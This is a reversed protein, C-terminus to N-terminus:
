DAKGNDIPGTTAVLDRRPREVEIEARRYLRPYRANCADLQGLRVACEDLPKIVIAIGLTAVGASLQKCPAASLRFAVTPEKAGTRNLSPGLRSIPEVANQTLEVPALRTFAAPIARFVPRSRFGVISGVIDADRTLATASELPLM